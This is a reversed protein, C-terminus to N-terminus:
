GDLLARLSERVSAARDPQALASAVSAVLYGAPQGSDFFSGAYTVAHFPEHEALLVMADTLNEEGQVAMGSNRAEEIADFIAPSLLYRGNIGAGEPETYRAGPKEMIGDMRLLGSEVPAGTVIGWADYYEPGVTTVSIASGGFREVAARLALGPPEGPFVMDPLMLLFPGDVGADRAFLTASGTGRAEPQRIWQVEVRKLLDRLGELRPDAQEESDLPAFYRELFPEARDSTVITIRRAGCTIAEEITSHILPRDFNPLFEKPVARTTPRMRTGRGAAIIVADEFTNSTM